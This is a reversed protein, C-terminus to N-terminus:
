VDFKEPSVKNNVFCKTSCFFVGIAFPVIGCFIVIVAIFIVSMFVYNVIKEFIPMGCEEDPLCVSPKHNNRGYKIEACLNDVCTCKGPGNCEQFWKCVNCYFGDCNVGTWFRFCSCIGSSTCNGNGSCDTCNFSYTFGILFLFFMKNLFQAM